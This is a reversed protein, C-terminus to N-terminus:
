AGPTPTPTGAGEGPTEEGPAGEDPTEEGPAEETPTEEGLPEETPTEEGPEEEGPTEEGPEEETPTEEGPAGETPTEEGPAGETPTEEGPAEETPTETANDEAEVTVEATDMAIGNRVYPDDQAADTVLYTFQRDQDTDRHAIAVLTTTGEIESTLPVEVETASENTLYDTVGLFAGSRNYIAVFGGDTLNAEAVTVASGNSTQDEFQISATANTVNDEQVQSAVPGGTAGVAVGALALAAVAVLLRNDFSM